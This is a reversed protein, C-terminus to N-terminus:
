TKERYQETNLHFKLDPYKYSLLLIAYKRLKEAEEKSDCVPLYITPRWKGSEKHVGSKTSNRVNQIITCARLNNLNNNLKDHDIHDVVYGSKIPGNFAEWVVRSVQKWYYRGSNSLGVQYYGSNSLKFKISQGPITRGKNDKRTLSRIRGFSSAEYQEEFGLVPGWMEVDNLGSVARGKLLLWDMEPRVELNKIWSGVSTAPYVGNHVSFDLYASLDKPFCSGSFGYKGDTGPVLFHSRGIRGDNLIEAIVRKSNVGIAECIQHLENFYALKNCFFVNTGYKVLAAEDWTMWVIPVAPFRTNFLDELIRHSSFNDSTGLIIRSQQIFDLDATKETLFEPSHIVILNRHKANLKRASGPPITSKIIVIKVDDEPLTRSLDSLASDLISLDVSGDAKMPTPLCIFLIDQNVVDAYKFGMDKFKDYIKVNTYTHFAKCVATGVFGAGIIGVSYM